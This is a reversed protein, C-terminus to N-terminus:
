EILFTRFLLSKVQGDSRIEARETLDDRLHQFGRPGEIQQLSVTRVYALIDQHVAQAISPDAQGDLVLAIELRVWNDSPYNLNTTIPALTVIQQEGVQASQEADNEADSSASSQGDKMASQMRVESQQDGVVMGVLWGGGGALVTLLLVAALTIMNTKKDSGPSDKDPTM